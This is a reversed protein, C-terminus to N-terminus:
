STHRSEFLLSRGGFDVAPNVVAQAKYASNSKIMIKVVQGGFDTNSPADRIFGTSMKRELISVSIHRQAHYVRLLGFPGTEKGRGARMAGIAVATFIQPEIFCVDFYSWTTIFALGCPDDASLKELVPVAQEGVVRASGEVPDAKM